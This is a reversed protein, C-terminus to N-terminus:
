WLHIQALIMMEQDPHKCFHGEEEVRHNGQPCLLWQGPHGCVGQPIHPHADLAVIWSHFGHQRIGTAWSSQSSGQGGCSRDGVHYWLYCVMHYKNGFLWSKCPVFMYGPCTLKNTWVSMSEDLCNVYGPVFNEVM